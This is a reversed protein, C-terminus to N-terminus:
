STRLNYATLLRKTEAAESLKAACLNAKVSLDDEAPEPLFGISQNITYKM